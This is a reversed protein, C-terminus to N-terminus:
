CVTFAAGSLLLKIGPSQNILSTDPAWLNKSQVQRDGVALLTVSMQNETLTGTKDSCIVTVSGLTEVAPLHRILAQQKLMRQAGLALSITVVAPLGEPIAAVALSVATLVLPKIPEGRSLGLIFIVVVIALAVMALTQGLQDLRRQLPTLATEIEGMLHAVQGLETQMGTATIVAKGHGYSVLTGMFVMNRRDGVPLSVKDLANVQKDVPESEGSITSEQTRLNISELLRGDAPVLNGAELLAIDGPVLLRASLEQWLGGRCVKVTPVALQKLAAIAKSARYDQIFGLLASLLVIALIAWTDKIDGLLASVGAAVLLIVMTFNTLQQWLIQWPPKLDTEVLQNTGLQSLRRDAEQQSLGLALDTELQQLVEATELQYRDKL